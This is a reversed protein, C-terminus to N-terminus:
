LVHCYQDVSAVRSALEGDLVPAFKDRFKWLFFRAMLTCFAICREPRDVSLWNRMLDEPPKKGSVMMRMCARIPRKGFKLRDRKLAFETLREPLSEIMM